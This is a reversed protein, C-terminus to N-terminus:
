TNVHIVEMYKCGRLRCIEPHDEEGEGEGEGEGERDEADGNIKGDGRGKAITAEVAKKMVEANKKRDKLFKKMEKLKGARITKKEAWVQHDASYWDQWEEKEEALENPVGAMWKGLRDHGKVQNHIGPGYEYQEQRHGPQAILSPPQPKVALQTQVVAQTPLKVQLNEALSAQVAPLTQLAAQTPPKVQLKVAPQAQVEAQTSAQSFLQQQRRSRRSQVFIWPEEEPENSIPQSPEASPEAEKAITIAPANIRLTPKSNKSLRPAPKAKKVPTSIPLLPKIVPMKRQALPQSSVPAAIQETQTSAHQFRVPGVHELKTEPSKKKDVHLLGKRIQPKTKPIPEPKARSAVPFGLPLRAERRRKAEAEADRRAQAQAKAHGESEPERRALQRSIAEKAAQIVAQAHAQVEAEGQAETEAISGKIARILALAGQVRAKTERNLPHRGRLLENVIAPKAAGKKTFSDRRSRRQAPGPTTTRTRTPKFADLVIKLGRVSSPVPLSGHTSKILALVRKPTFITIERAGKLHLRASLRAKEKKEMREARIKKAWFHDKSGLQHKSRTGQPPPYSEVEERTFKLIQKRRLRSNVNFGLERAKVHPNLHLNTSQDKENTKSGWKGRQSEHKWGQVRTSTNATPFAHALFDFTNAVLSCAQSNATATSQLTIGDADIEQRRESWRYNLADSWNWDMYLRRAAPALELENTSTQTESPDPEPFERPRASSLDWERSTPSTFAPPRTIIAFHQPEDNRHQSVGLYHNSPMGPAAEPKHTPATPTPPKTTRERISDARSWGCDQPKPATTWDFMAM